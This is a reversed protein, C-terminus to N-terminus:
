KEGNAAGIETMGDLFRLFNPPTVFPTFFIICGNCPLCCEIHYM